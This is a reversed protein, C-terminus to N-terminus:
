IGSQPDACRSIEWTIYGLIGEVDDPHFWRTDRDRKFWTLQKRCYKHTDFKIRDVAEGLTCKGDMYDFIEKYGVTNLANEGRMGYVKGAEELLGEEMMRDVRGDIRQYLEERRRELGVRVMRFPRQKRSNKRFSSYPRGTSRCVEVAHLVRRPNRRDVVAFHEPDREGLEALIGDIGERGYQDILDRRVKADVAPIDDIGYCVADVYMMSGGSMIATDTWLFIGDLLALVDNEFMSANYHDGIRLHGVMYHRARDMEEATPAATGIPIDGYVQRSDANIIPAGLREALDLCLSTKGVGTPGVIVVLFKM